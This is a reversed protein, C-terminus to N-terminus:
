LKSKINTAEVEAMSRKMTSFKDHATVSTINNNQKDNVNGKIVADIFEVTARDAWSSGLGFKNDPPSERWGLHGGCRTNVVMINPNSLSYHLKQSSSTSVLFDDESSIQLFPVSVHAICRYSSADKWYEKANEYGCHPEYPPYPNNRIFIPALAEDFKGITSAMFAMRIREQFFHSTMRQLTLFHELVGKRAGLSLIHGWPFQINGAHIHLPNGLSVGGAVIDPLTGGRGEEGLYKTVLNAGLSNGVLFLRFPTEQLRGCLIQVVGRIDGTYAGTYMRPTTLPIGGCGRFNVGVAVWGRDTCASMTSRIYGFSTDNNIGHWILVVHSKPFVQVNNQGNKVVFAARTYNDHSYVHNDEHLSSNIPIEWDLAIQAGDWPMTLIERVNRVNRKTASQQPGGALYAATSALVSRTGVILSPQITRRFISTPTSTLLQYITDLQPNNYVQGYVTPPMTLSKQLKLEYGLSLSSLASILLAWGSTTDPFSEIFSSRRRLFEQSFRRSLQRIFRLKSEYGNSNMKNNDYRENRKFLRRLLPISETSSSDDDGQFFTEIIVEGISDDSSSDDRCVEKTRRRPPKPTM